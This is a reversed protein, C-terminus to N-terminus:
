LGDNDAFTHLPPRFLQDAFHLTLMLLCSGENSCLSLPVSASSTTCPCRLMQTRPAAISHWPLLMLTLFLSTPGLVLTVKQSCLFHLTSHRSHNACSLRRMTVDVCVSSSAIWGDPLCAGALPPRELRKSSVDCTQRALVRQANITTHFLSHALRRRPWAKRSFFQLYVVPGRGLSRYLCRSHCRSPSSVLLAELSLVTVVTSILLQQAFHHHCQVLSTNSYSEKHICGTMPLSKPVVWVATATQSTSSPPARADSSSFPFFVTGIYTTQVSSLSHTIPFMASAIASRNGTRTKHSTWRSM